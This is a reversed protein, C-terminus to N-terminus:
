DEEIIPISIKVNYNNNNSRTKYKAGYKKALQDILKNLEDCQNKREKIDISILLFSNIELMSLDIYNSDILIEDIINSIYNIFELNDYFDKKQVAISYKLDTGKDFCKSFKLSLLCDFIDNGSNIVYQNKNLLNKYKKVTSKIQDIDKKEALWEIQWLIYFMRHNLSETENRLHEIATYKQQNFALKQIERENKIKDNYNRNSMLIVLYFLFNSLILLVLLFKILSIDYKEFNLTYLCLGISVIMSLEAVIVIWWERLKLTINSKKIGFYLPISFIFQMLKALICAFCYIAKNLFLDSSQISFITTTFWMSITTCLIIIINYIIPIFLIQFTVKKIEVILGLITVLLVLVTLFVGDYSYISSLNTLVFNIIGIIIIYRTKKNLEFFYAIFSSFLFVEIFNIFFTFFMM